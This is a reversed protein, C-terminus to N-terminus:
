DATQVTVMSRAVDAHDIVLRHVTVSDAPLTTEWGCSCEAEVTGPLSEFIVISHQM